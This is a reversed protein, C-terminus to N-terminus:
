KFRFRIPMQYYAKVAIGKVKAPSRFKPILAVVRMAEDDMGYGASNLLSLRGVKGHEDVVFKVFVTGEKGESSAWNPYRLHQSVFRSLASLGGEYQPLSDVEFPQNVKTTDPTGLPNGPKGSSPPGIEGTTTIPGTSAIVINATSTEKTLLTSDVIVKSQLDSAKEETTTAKEKKEEVTETKKDEEKGFPIVIVTDHIFPLALIEPTPQNQNHFYFAVSCAITGVGIMMMSLSKFITYGYDSRLVYAGYEKNRDAFIIDNLKQENNIM